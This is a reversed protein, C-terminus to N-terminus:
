ATFNFSNVPTPRTQGLPTVFPRNSINGMLVVAHPSGMVIRLGPIPGLVKIHNGIALPNRANLLVTAAGEDEGSLHECRNNSFAVQEFRYEHERYKTPDTKTV